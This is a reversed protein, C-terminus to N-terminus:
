RRLIAFATAQPPASWTPTDPLMQHRFWTLQRKAYHRTRTQAQSVADARSLRGDILAALEAVGLARMVPLSPDLRRAMLAAVEDVAGADVMAAFRENIAAYLADRPPALVHVDFRWPTDGTGSAAMEGADDLWASLPRGTHDFVARARVLRQRDNAALRHETAPDAAALEVRFAAEGITALREEAARGAADPVPPIAALGQILARLYLGTGGVVIPHRGVALAAGIADRALARWRGASCRESGDLVGYLRHPVHAWSARDPQATLLPLDRYVQMSDANVIEAARGNDALARALRLALGSKGSATPGGIVTVLSAM